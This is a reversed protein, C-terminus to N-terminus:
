RLRSPYAQWARPLLGAVDSSMAKHVNVLFLMVQCNPLLYAHMGGLKIVLLTGYSCTAMAILTRDPKKNSQIQLEHDLKKALYYGEVDFCLHFCAIM